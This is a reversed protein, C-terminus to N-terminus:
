SKAKQAGFMEICFDSERKGLWISTYAIPKQLEYDRKWQSIKM